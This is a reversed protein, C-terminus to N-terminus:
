STRSHEMVIEDIDLRVLQIHKRGDRVGVAGVYREFAQLAEYGSEYGVYFDGYGGRPEDGWTFLLFRAGLPRIDRLPITQKVDCDVFTAATETRCIFDNWGGEWPQLRDRGFILYKM